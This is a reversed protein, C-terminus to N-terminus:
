KSEGWYDHMGSQFAGILVDHMQAAPFDKREFLECLRSVNRGAEYAEARVLMSLAHLPDEGYASEVNQWLTELYPRISDKAEYVTTKALM